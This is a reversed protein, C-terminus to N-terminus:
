KAAKEAKAKEAAEAAMRASAAQRAREVKSEDVTSATKVEIPTAQWGVGLADWEERSHVIRAKETKHYLWRPFEYVPEAPKAPVAPAPATKADEM